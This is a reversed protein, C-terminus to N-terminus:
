FWLPNSNNNLYCIDYNLTQIDDGLLDTFDTSLTRSFRFGMEFVRITHSVTPRFASKSLRM